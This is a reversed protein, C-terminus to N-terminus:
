RPEKTWVAHARKVTSLGRDVGQAVDALTVVQRGPQANVAHYWDFWEPLPAERAPPDDRRYTRAPEQEPETKELGTRLDATDRPYADGVARLLHEYLPRADPMTNTITVQLRTPSTPVLVLVILEDIVHAIDSGDPAMGSWQMYGPLALRAWYHGTPREGSVVNNLRITATPGCPVTPGSWGWELALAILWDAFCEATTELNITTQESM